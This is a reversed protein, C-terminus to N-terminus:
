MGFSPGDDTDPPSPRIARKPEPSRKPSPDIGLSRAMDPIDVCEFGSTAFRKRQVATFEPSVLMRRQPLERLQKAQESNGTSELFQRFQRALLATDHADANRKCGGLVLTRDRGEGQVAMVDIDPLGRRWIGFGTWSVDPLGALWCAAFRELAQGELTEMRSMIRESDSTGLPGSAGPPPMHLACIQFLTSNESVRWRNGKELFEGDPEVLELHRELTNLSEQLTPGARQRLEQPFDQVAAGKPRRQGLWQLVERHPEALEIFAQNDFREEPDSRLLEHQAGLFAMRWSRGDPWAGLRRASVGDAEDHTLDGAFRRWHKPVGGYATWLTLFRSPHALIGQEAAMELVTAPPWQHLKVSIDARGYLPQDSRFLRLMQQQHSGMLVLKGTPKRGGISQYEDILRKVPTVLSSREANQFESLGVVAGKCVLHDVIHLFRWGPDRDWGVQPLDALLHRLGGREIAAGLDVVAQTGDRGSPLECILVPANRTGRRGAEALLETKGVGRRGSIRVACFGRSNHEQLQLAGELRSLERVRGYFRWDAM